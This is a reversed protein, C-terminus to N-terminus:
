YKITHDPTPTPQIGAGHKGNVLVVNFTRTTLMGPFSGMREGVTLERKAEDWTFAVTAKQHGADLSNSMGDDEYLVFSGDRGAYVRVETPDQTEGTHQVVPGMPVISGARVYLPMEEIGCSASVVRGGEIKTGDFFSYWTSAPLYVPRSAPIGPTYIPAVLFADGWMFQDAISHVLHDATFDFVLGRQMTYGEQEVRAFGSYIYPLLRYRLSIASRVIWGQAEGYNWLETNSGGGHVRFIPTFAGFQFWRTLM